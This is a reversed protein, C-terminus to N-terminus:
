REKKNGKEPLQKNAGLISDVNSKIKQWKNLHQKEKKYAQSLNNKEEQLQQYQNNLQELTPLKKDPYIKKLENVAARYLILERQHQREFQSKNKSQQYALYVAKSQQYTKRYKIAHALQHLQEDTRKFAQRAEQYGHQAAEVQETLAQYSDLHQETLYNITKAAEKLNNIKAWHEYGASEQVKLNNELDILLGIKKNDTSMKKRKAELQKLISTTEGLRARIADETYNTGLRKARTFREQNPARFSVHKGHKIEYGFEQMKVLVEEFTQSTQICLDLHQKLKSKWSTGNKDALWEKYCKGRNGSPTDIVSLDHERCIRDSTARLRRYAGRDSNFKKYTMFNAACVMIHNHIHEKDIHTTVIYEYQDGFYEAAFEMGVQHATESDVEGPKFSQVVHYAKNINIGQCHSLTDAFQAAAVEPVQACAHSSVLLGNMTKEPNCIYKIAKM